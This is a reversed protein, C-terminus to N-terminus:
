SAASIGSECVHTFSFPIQAKMASKAIYHYALTLAFWLEKICHFKHVLM